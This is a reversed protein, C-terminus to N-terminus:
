RGEGLSDNLVVALQDGAEQIQTVYKNAAWRLYDQSPKHDPYFGSQQVIQCAAEAWQGPTGPRVAMTPSALAVQRLNPTHEGLGTDWLRHLNSGRGNINIQYRNGGKDGAYGAHLPQFIDGVLHVVYRLAKARTLDDNRHDALIATQQQLAAVLCNGDPCDRRASYHCTGKPFNVYHWRATTSNKHKDAWAAIDVISAADITKLLREAEARAAPTLSEQARAAILAHAKWGFAQATSGLLLTFAIICTFTIAKSM